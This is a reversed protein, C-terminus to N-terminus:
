YGVWPPEAGEKCQRRQRGAWCSLSQRALMEMLCLALTAVTAAHSDMTKEDFVGIQTKSRISGGCGAPFRNRFRDSVLRERLWSRIRISEEPKGKPYLIVEERDAVPAAGTIADVGEDWPAENLCLEPYIVCWWNKGAGAGLIVRVTRYSGAPWVADDYVRSPFAFVGTEVRATYDLGEGAIVADAIQALEAKRAKLELYCSGADEWGSKLSTLLADRVAYKLEQDIQEDSHAIIHLRVVDAVPEQPEDGQMRCFARRVPVAGCCIWVRM